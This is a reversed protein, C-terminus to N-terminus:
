VMFCMPQEAVSIVGLNDEVYVPNPGVSLGFDGLNYFLLPQEGISMVGLNDEVYVPTAQLISANL